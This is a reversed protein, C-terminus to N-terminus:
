PDRPPNAWLTYSPGLEEPLGALDGYDTGAELLLVRRDKKESLRSALACGSSGAGVIVVDFSADIVGDEMRGGAHALVDSPGRHDRASATQCGAEPGGSDQM